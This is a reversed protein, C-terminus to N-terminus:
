IKVKDFLDFAKKLKTKTLLKKKDMTGIKWETYDIVGSKDM